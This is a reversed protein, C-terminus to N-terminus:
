SQIIQKIQELDKPDITRYSWGHGLKWGCVECDNSPHTQYTMGKAEQHECEAHMDNLHWKEWLKLIRYYLQSGILQNSYLNWIDDVCQGGRIIDTHIHNWINGCVSFVLQGQNNEKLEVDLTVLNRKIKGSEAVKGFEITRKM